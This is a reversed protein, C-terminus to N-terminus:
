TCLLQGARNTYSHQRTILQFANNRVAMANAPNNLIYHINQLMEQQDKFYFVHEGHKFVDEMEPCSSCLQLAGSASVEFFRMNAAPYNTDDIVNLNIASTRFFNGFDKGYLSQPNFCKKIREDKCNKMWETGRVFLKIGPFNDLIATIAKEREPRWGGAFSIDYDFQGKSCEKGELFLIDGAFPLWEVKEFGIKEFVSITAKSYTALKHYLRAANIQYQELNVLTDPWYLILEASSVSRFFALTGFLVPANGFVIVKDPQFDKFLIALERNAKRQWAHVPWFLNLKSGIKGLRVHSEVKSKVDFGKIEHGLQEFARVYSNALAYISFDSVILIKM